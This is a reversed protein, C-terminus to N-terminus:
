AWRLSCRSSVTLKGSGAGVAATPTTPTGPKTLFEAATAVLTRRQRQSPILHHREWEEVLKAFDDLCCFLAITSDTM